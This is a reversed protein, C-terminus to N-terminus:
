SGFIAVPLACITLMQSRGLAPVRQASGGFAALKIKVYPKIWYSHQAPERSALTTNDM